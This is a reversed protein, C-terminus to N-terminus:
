IRCGTRDTLVSPCTVRKFYANPNDANKFDNFRWYCGQQLAAPLGACQSVSWVGGYRNGGNWSGFQPSCGDFIGVGGGPMLIDFHRQGLDDGRNTVQVIMKTNALATDTFLLEYCSCCPVGNSAAFGYLVGGITFPQNNTCTVSQGPEGGGGCINQTNPSVPTVGDKKCTRVYTQGNVNSPWACSPKCCDWYRTTKALGEYGNPSPTPTPNPKSGCCQQHCYSGDPNGCAAPSAWSCDCQYTADSLAKKNKKKKESFLKKFLAKEVRREARRRREQRNRRRRREGIGAIVKDELPLGQTRLYAKGLKLGVKGIKKLIKGFKIDSETQKNTSTAATVFLITALLAVLLLFVQKM